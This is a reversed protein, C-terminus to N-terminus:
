FYLPPKDILGKSYDLFINNGTKEFSEKTINRKGFYKILTKDKIRM